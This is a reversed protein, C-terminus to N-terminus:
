KNVIRYKAEDNEKIDLMIKVACVIAAVNTLVFGWATITMSVEVTLLKLVELLIDDMQSRVYVIALIQVASIIATVVFWQQKWEFFKLMPILAMFVSVANMIIAVTVLPGWGPVEKLLYAKEMGLASVNVFPLRICVIALIPLVVAAIYAVKNVEIDMLWASIGRPRRNSLTQETYM